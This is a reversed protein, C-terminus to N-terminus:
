LCPVAEGLSVDPSIQTVIDTKKQGVFPTLIPNSITIPSTCDLTGIKFEDFLDPNLSEVAKLGYWDKIVKAGKRLRIVVFM